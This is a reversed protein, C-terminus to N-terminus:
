ASSKETSFIQSPVRKGLIYTLTGGLIIFFSGMLSRLGIPEKFVLWNFFAAYIISSYAVPALYSSPAFAFSKTLLVQNAVASFGISLVFIWDMPTPQVWKALAFPFMALASITFFFFLIREVPEKKLVLSRVGSLAFAAAIAGLLAIIAGPHFVDWAPNLIIIIGVFGLGISWWIHFSFQEKLWLIGLIPVFFPSTFHLTTADLLNTTKLALFIFYFSTLGALDRVLHNKWHTFQFFNKKKWIVPLLCCLAILNQLFLIQAIPLRLQLQSACANVILYFASACLM